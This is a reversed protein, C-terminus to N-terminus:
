EKVTTIMLEFRMASTIHYVKKRRLTLKNKMIKMGGKYSIKNM